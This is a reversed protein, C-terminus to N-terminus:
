PKPYPEPTYLCVTLDLAIQLVIPSTGISFLLFSFRLLRVSYEIGFGLRGSLIRLTVGFGSSHLLM